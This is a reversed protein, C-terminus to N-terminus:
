LALAAVRLLDLADRDAGELGPCIGMLWPQVQELGGEAWGDTAGELRALLKREADMELAKIQERLGALAQDDQAQTRWNQRLERLPKVVQEQWPECVKNLADLRSADFTAGRRGLWCATLLLCVDAGAEQLRLCAREVGPETYLRLAFTWLDSTM